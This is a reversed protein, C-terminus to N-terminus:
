NNFEIDYNMKNLFVIAKNFTFLVEKGKLYLRYNNVQNKREENDPCNIWVPPTSSDEIKYGSNGMFSKTREYSFLKLYSMEHKTANYAHKLGLLQESGNKKSDRIPKYRKRNNKCHWEDNANVWLLLECISSNIDVTKQEFDKDENTRNIDNVLRKEARKLGRRITNFRLKKEIEIGPMYMNEEDYKSCLM